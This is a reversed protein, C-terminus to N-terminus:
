MIFLLASSSPGAKTVVISNPHENHCLICLGPALSFVAPACIPRASGMYLVPSRDRSTITSAFPWNSEPSPNALNAWIRETQRQRCSRSVLLAVSDSFIRRLHDMKSALQSGSYTITTKTTCARSEERGRNGPSCAQSEDTSRARGASRMKTSAPWM